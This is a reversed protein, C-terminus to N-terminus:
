PRCAGLVVPEPLHLGRAWAAADMAIRGAPRVQALALAGDGCRVVTGDLTGPVGAPVVGPIARAELVGLRAGDPMTTWARELRVLRACYSAPGAFPLFFDASTLRPALAVEGRQPVPRPLGGPAGLLSSLLRAGVEALRARLATVTEDPGIAVRETAYVPGADLEDVVEMVSVGTDADGALIAHEVPTAGRWRPLLSFHLNVLPLGGLVPPRLRAGYAVVVGLDIGLALLAGPEHAVALGRSRAVAEVPTPVAAGRRERRAPPRTVVGVVDHGADLLAELVV